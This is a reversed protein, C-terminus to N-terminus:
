YELLELCTEFVCEVSIANMCYLDCKGFKKGAAPHCPGCKPSTYIVKTNRNTPCWVFPDSPGFLLLSPLKVAAALHSIGSDNGIFLLCDKLLLSLKMLSEERIVKIGAPIAMNKEAPGLIWLVQFGREKLLASLDSWKELPWNKKAGGSGPHIFIKKKSDQLGSEKDGTFLNPLYPIEPSLWTKDFLHEPLHNKILSLRYDIIPIRENPIQPQTLIHKIGTYRLNGSLPSTKSAFLIASDFTALIRKLSDDPVASFLSVFAAGNVDWFEDFYGSEVGM